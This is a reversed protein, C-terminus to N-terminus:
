KLLLAATAVAATAVAVGVMKSKPCTGLCAKLDKDATQFCEERMEHGPPLARCIDYKISKEEYCLMRCDTSPAQGFRPVVVYAM